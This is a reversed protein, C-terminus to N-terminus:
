AGIQPLFLESHTCLGLEIELILVTHLFLLPVASLPLASGPARSAMHHGVAYTNLLLSVQITQSM